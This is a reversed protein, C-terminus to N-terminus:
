SVTRWSESENESDPRKCAAFSISSRLEFVQSNRRSELSRIGFSVPVVVGFEWDSFHRLYVITQVSSYPIASVDPISREPANLLSAVEM